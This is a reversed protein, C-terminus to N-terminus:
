LKLARITDRLRPLRIFEDPTNLLTQLEIPELGLERIFEFRTRLDM